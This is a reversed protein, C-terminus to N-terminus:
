SGLGSASSDWVEVLMRRGRLRILKEEIEGNNSLVNHLSDQELVVVYHHWHPEFGRGRPRSDLVIGSLWQVGM